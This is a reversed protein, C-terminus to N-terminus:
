ASSQDQTKWSAFINLRPRLHSALKMSLTVVSAHRDGSGSRLTRLVPPQCEQFRWSRAANWCRCWGHGSVSTNSDYSFDLGGASSRDRDTAAEEAAEWRATSFSIGIREGTPCSTASTGAAWLSGAWSIALGIGVLGGIATASRHCTAFTSLADNTRHVVTDKPWTRKGSLSKIVHNTSAAVARPLKHGSGSVRRRLRAPGFSLSFRDHDM